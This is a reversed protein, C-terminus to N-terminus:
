LCEGESWNLFFVFFCVNYMKELVIQPMNPPKLSTLILFHKTLPFSLMSLCWNINLLVFDNSGNSKHALVHYIILFVIFIVSLQFIQMEIWTILFEKVLTWSGYIRTERIQIKKSTRKAMEGESYLLIFISIFYICFLIPKKSKLASM